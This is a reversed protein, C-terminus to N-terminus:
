AEGRQLKQKTVGNAHLNANPIKKALVTLGLPTIRVQERLHEEGSHIDRVPIQKLVLYGAKVRDAYALLAKHGLRRYCWNNERLWLVFQREPVGLTNASERITTSGTTEAIRDHAEAKPALAQVKAELEIREQEAQMAMEILELRSLNAPMQAKAQRECDIFYQRAEKGKQNREVMSLEKAMNLTLAYEKAPRGGSSGSLFSCFDKGEQFGYEQIRRAIWDKFLSGVELFTHLERANTTQVVEGSIRSQGIQIINNM